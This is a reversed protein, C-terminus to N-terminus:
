LRTGVLLQLPNVSTIKDFIEESVGARLLDDHMQTFVYSYGPGGRRMRDAIVCVDHSLLLHDSWGRRILEAANAVRAEQMPLDLPSNRDYMILTGRRCLSEHYDVFPYGDCHSVAVRRLDCGEEELVDLQWAGVDSRSAHLILGLGSANQARAAARLVREEVGSLWERDAGIEGIVGPRIGEVGNDIDDLLLATLTRTSMRNLDQEYFPERYWGSGMIIHVGTEQSIRSIAAPDRGLGGNTCDVVTAGGVARFERLDHIAENPDMMYHPRQRTVRFMNCLIHEHPLVRGLASASTPGLM